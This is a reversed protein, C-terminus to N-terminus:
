GYVNSLDPNQELDPHGVPTLLAHYDNHALVAMCTIM